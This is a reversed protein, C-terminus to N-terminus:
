LIHPLHCDGVHLPLLPHQYLQLLATRTNTAEASASPFEALQRIARDPTSASSSNPQTLCFGLELLGECASITSCAYSNPTFLIRICAFCCLRAGTRNPSVPRDFSTGETSSANLSTMGGAFYVVVCRHLVALKHVGDKTKLVPSDGKVVAVIERALREANHRGGRSKSAEMIWDIAQRARQRDTLPTPFVYQKAARKFQRCRLLPAAAAIAERVIPLPPAKTFAHVHMLMRSIVRSAEQRKGHLMVMSTFLHLLPDEAPPITPTVPPATSPALSTSPADPSVAPAASAAPPVGEFVSPPTAPESPTGQTTLLRLAPRAPSVRRFAVRAASQRLNALMKSQSSPLIPHPHSVATFIDLLFSVSRAKTSSHPPFETLARCRPRRIGITAIYVGLRERM